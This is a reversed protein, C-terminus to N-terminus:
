DGQDLAPSEAPDPAQEQDQEHEQAPAEPAVTPKAQAKSRLVAQARPTIVQAIKGAAELEKALEATPPTYVEGLNFVKRGQQLCGDIVIFDKTNKAM